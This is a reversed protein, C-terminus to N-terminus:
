EAHVGDIVAQEPFFPAFVAPPDGRQGGRGRQERRQGPQALETMSPGAIQPHQNKYEHRHHAKKQAGVDGGALLRVSCNAKQLRKRDV